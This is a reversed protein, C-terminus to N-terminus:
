PDERMSPRGDDEGEGTGPRGPRFAQDAALVGPAVLNCSVPHHSWQAGPGGGDVGPLHPIGAGISSVNRDRSRAEASVAQPQTTETSPMEASIRGKKRIVTGGPTRVMVSMAHRGPCGSKRLRTKRKPTSGIPWESRVSRSSMGPRPNTSCDGM